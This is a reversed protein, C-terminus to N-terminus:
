KNRKNNRDVTFQQTSQAAQAPEAMSGPLQLLQCLEAPDRIAQKIQLQRAPLSNSTAPSNQLAPDAILM